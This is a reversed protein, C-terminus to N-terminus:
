LSWPSNEFAVIFESMRKMVVAFDVAWIPTNIAGAFQKKDRGGIAGDKIQEM